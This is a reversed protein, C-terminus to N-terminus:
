KSLHTLSEDLFHLCGLSPPFLDSILPFGASTGKCCYHCVNLLYEHNVLFYELVRKIRLGHPSFVLKTWLCKSLM